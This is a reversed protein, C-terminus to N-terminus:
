WFVVVAVVLTATRHNFNHPPLSCRFLRGRCCYVAVIRCWFVVLASVWRHACSCVTRCVDVETPAFMEHLIEFPSFPSLTESHWNKSQFYRVDMKRSKRGVCVPRVEMSKKLLDLEPQVIAMRKSNRIADIGLPLLLTRIGLTVAAISAWYPMGTTTVLGDIAKMAVEVPLMYWEPWLHNTM